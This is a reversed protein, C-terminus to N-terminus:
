ALLSWKPREINAPDQCSCILCADDVPPATRLIVFTLLVASPLKFSGQNCAGCDEDLTFTAVDSGPEAAEFAAVMVQNKKVQKAGQALEDAPEHKHEHHGLHQMETVSQEHQCYASAAAWSVQLPLLVLMLVTLWRRM